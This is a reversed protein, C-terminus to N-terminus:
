QLKRNASGNINPTWPIGEKKKRKSMYAKYKTRIEKAEDDEDSTFGTAECESNGEDEQDDKEGEGNQADEHTAYETQDGLHADEHTAPSDLNLVNEDKFMEFVDEDTETMAAM